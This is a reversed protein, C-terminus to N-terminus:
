AAHPQWGGAREIPAGAAVTAPRPHGITLIASASLEDWARRVAESEIREGLVLTPLTRALIGIDLWLSANRLYWVDLVAKDQASIERGGKVQAWGTLGPPALLRVSFESAGDIPLLPRPGVFSMEGILINYLQPLEDLRTRRLFRGISSLRQADPIRAGNRDHATRMTRFKYLKFPRGWAGPRQQWFITPLGVDLAVVLSLLVILPSMLVLLVAALVADVVRKFRWYPRRAAPELAAASFSIDRGDHHPLRTPMDDPVKESLEALRDSSEALGIREAFLDLRIDCTKEIELLAYQAAPSLAAFALTVVIRNVTIGHVDLTKVISEIEEPVGLIRHQQLLRGSHRESRGVIGAIRMREPAFEAVSRLFLDTVANIGVVLVTERAGGEFPAARPYSPPNHRSTYRLRMSVRVGILLFAMLLSQILPLARPVGDLRNVLFGAAVATLVIIIVSVLVRLYDAMVSYRWISQPLGSILLVVTATALTLSLYPLLGEIHAPSVELNDRLVLACMTALAILGLDILLLTARRARRRM